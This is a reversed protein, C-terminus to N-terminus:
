TAWQSANGGIHITRNGEKYILQETKRTLKKSAVHWISLVEGVIPADKTSKKIAGAEKMPKKKNGIKVGLESPPLM